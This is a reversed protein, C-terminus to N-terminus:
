RLSGQDGDDSREGTLPLDDVALAVGSEGASAAEFRALGDVWILVRSPAELIFELSLGAVDATEGASLSVQALDSLCAGQACGEACYTDSYPYSCIGDACTGPTGFTRM